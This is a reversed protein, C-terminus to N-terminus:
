TKNRLVNDWSVDLHERMATEALKPDHRRLAVLIKRHRIIGDENRGPILVGRRIVKYLVDSISEIFVALLVNKSAKAVAVHFDCDLRVRREIENKYIESETILSEINDLESDSAKEAAIRAATSELTHRIVYIDEDSIKDLKIFRNLLGSVTSAEPRTIYSGDGTKMQVLGREKLLKLSERIITRSVNFQGALETESPLKGKKVLSGNLISTELIDAIQEYYNVKELKYTAIAPM